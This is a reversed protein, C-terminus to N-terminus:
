IHILSLYFIADNKNEEYAKRQGIFNNLIGISITVVNWRISNCFECKKSIADYTDNDLMMYYFLSKHYNYYHLAGELEIRTSKNPLPNLLLIEPCERIPHNYECYGPLQVDFKGLLNLVKERKSGKLNRVPFEKIETKISM